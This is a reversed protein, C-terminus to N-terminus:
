EASRFAKSRIMERLVSKLARLYDRTLSSFAATDIADKALPDAWLEPLNPLSKLNRAERSIAQQTVPTRTQDVPDRESFVKSVNKKASGRSRAVKQPAFGGGRSRFDDRTKPSLSPKLSSDTAV